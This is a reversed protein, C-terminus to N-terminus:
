KKGIFARFVTEMLAISLCMGKVTDFGLRMVARSVTNIRKACPNYYISNSMRLIQATLMPDQLISRALDSFSSEDKSATGAVCQVTRTFLPMEERTIREVWLDIEQEAM